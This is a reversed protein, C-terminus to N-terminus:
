AKSWWRGGLGARNPDMGSLRDLDPPMQAVEATDEEFYHQVMEALVIDPLAKIRRLGEVEAHVDEAEQVVVLKGTEPEQFHVEVGPLAQLREVTAAMREPRTVVLIGSLNM